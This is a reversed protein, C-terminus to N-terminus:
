LHSCVLHGWAKTSTEETEFARQCICIFFERRDKLDKVTEKEIISVKVATNFITSAGWRQVGLRGLGARNKM